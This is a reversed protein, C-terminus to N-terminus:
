KTDEKFIPVISISTIEIDTIKGDKIKFTGNMEQSYDVIKNNTEILKNKLTNLFVDSYYEFAHPCNLIDLYPTKSELPETLDCEFVIYARELHRFNDAVVIYPADPNCINVGELIGKSVDTLDNLKELHNTFYIVNGIREKIQHSKFDKPTYVYGMGKIRKDLKRM